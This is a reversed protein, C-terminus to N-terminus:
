SLDLDHTHPVETHNVHNHDWVDQWDILMHSTESSMVSNIIQDNLGAVVHM